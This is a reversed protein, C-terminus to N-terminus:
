QQTDRSSSLMDKVKYQQEEWALGAGPMVGERQSWCWGGDVCAALSLDPPRLRSKRLSGNEAEPGWVARSHVALIGEVDM